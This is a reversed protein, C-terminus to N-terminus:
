SFDISTLLNIALTQVIKVGVHTESTYLIVLYYTSYNYFHTDTSFPNILILSCWKGSVEQTNTLAPLWVIYQRNGCYMM